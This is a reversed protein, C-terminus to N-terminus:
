SGRIKRFFVDYRRFDRSILAAVGEGTITAGAIGDIAHPNGEPYRAAVGGKITRLPVPQGDAWLIKGSFQEQFEDEEIRGGLGPTEGHDYFTVGAITRLDDELAMFGYITSWLGPGSVPFAYRQREGDEHWFFLPLQRKQRIQRPDAQAPDIEEGTAADVVIEGIHDAFIRDVADPAIRQGGEDRTEEGFAKLVNMKRDLEVERQQRERLGAAVGSLLVSCVICVTFAFTILQRDAPQM